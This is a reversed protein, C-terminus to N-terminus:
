MRDREGPPHAGDETTPIPARVLLMNETTRVIAGEGAPALALRCQVRAQLGGAVLELGPDVVVQPSGYRGAHALELDCRVHDLRHKVVCGAKPGTNGTDIVAGLQLLRHAVCELRPAGVDLLDNLTADGAIPRATAHRFYM